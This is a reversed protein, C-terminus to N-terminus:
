LPPWPVAPWGPSPHPHIGKRLLRHVRAVLAAVDHEPLLAGLRAQGENTGLADSLRELRDLEADPCRSM